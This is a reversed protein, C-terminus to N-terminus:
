NLDPNPEDLNEIIIETQDKDGRVVAVRGLELHDCDDSVLLGGDVLGDQWPKCAALLNDLDHKRKDKVHFIYSIRAHNIPKAKFDLMAERAQWGARNREERTVRSRVSWHSWSNPNLERPPLYPIIVAYDTLSM